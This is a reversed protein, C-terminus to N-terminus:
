CHSYFCDSTALAQVTPFPPRWPACFARGHNLPVARQFSTAGLFRLRCSTAGVTAGLFVLRCSTAGAGLQHRSGARVAAGAVGNGCVKKGSIAKFQGADEFIPPSMVLITAAVCSRARRVRISAAGVMRVDVSLCAWCNRLLASAPAVVVRRELHAACKRHRCRASKVGDLRKCAKSAM